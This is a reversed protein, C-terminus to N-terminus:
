GCKQPCKTISSSSAAAASSRPRKPQSCFKTNAAPIGDNDIRAANPGRHAANLASTEPAHIRRYQSPICSLSDMTQDGSKSTLACNITTVRNQLNNTHERLILQDGNRLKLTYPYPLPRLKRYDLLIPPWHRTQRICALIEALRRM